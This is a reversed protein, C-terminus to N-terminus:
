AAPPCVPPVDKKGSAWQKLAAVFANTYGVTANGRPHIEDSALESVHDDAYACWDAAYVNPYKKAADVVQQQADQMYWRDGYPMAIVITHKPGISKIIEDLQGPFAQGNTGFGLFVFQRLADQAKLDAIIAPAAQYHRSVEANIDIGPFRKQLEAQSALMVSDGIANINSGDKPMDHTVVKPAPKVAGRESRNEAQLRELESELATGHSTNHIALGAFVCCLIMAAPVMAGGFRQRSTSREGFIAYSLKRTSEIFGYRRIPTEIFRFSLEAAVLSIVIAILGTIWKKRGWEYDQFLSVVFLNAPVHWLYLSFSIFGLRRLVKNRFIAAVLGTNRVVSAIIIAVILSSSILGGRYTFTDQDGLWFFYFIQVALAPIALLSLIRGHQLLGERYGWTDGRKETSSSITISALAAGILLGFAHTDTGYYVRTADHGPNVIIAMAGASIVTGALALKGVLRPTKRLIVLLLSVILPWIIYFQEEVSLSWYHAFVPLESQAFYSQSHAIQVWNNVFLASSWFQRGLNVNVDGGIVGAIAACIVLTSIAAPAIRRVRRIWFNKLSITRSYVFERLLLSTILFGSLVFFVDVGLYGGPLVNGFLHYIVVSIVALGRLGDIGPVHRIGTPTDKTSTKEATSTKGSAPSPHTAVATHTRASSTRESSSAGQTRDRSPAASAGARSSEARASKKRRGKGSKRDSRPGIRQPLATGQTFRSVGTARPVEVPVYDAKSPRPPAPSKRSVEPTTEKSAKESGSAKADKHPTTAADEQSARADDDAPHAKATDAKGQVPASGTKKARNPQASKKDSSGKPQTDRQEASGSEHPTSRSVQPKPRRLSPRPAGSVESPRHIRPLSSGVARSRGAHKKGVSGAGTSGSAASPTTRADALRRAGAPTRGVHRFSPTDSERTSSQSASTRRRASVPTSTRFVSFHADAGTRDDSRSERRRVEGRGQREGSNGPRGTEDAAGDHPTTSQQSTASSGSKASSSSGAKSSGTAPAGSSASASSSSTASSDSSGSQGPEFDSQQATASQSPRPSNGITSASRLLSGGQQAASQVAQAVRRTAKGVGAPSLKPLRM